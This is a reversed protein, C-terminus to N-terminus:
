WTQQSLFSLLMGWVKGRHSISNKEEASLESFYRGPFDVPSCIFDYGFGKEGRPADGVILRCVGRGSFIVEGEPNALALACVYQGSRNKHEKLLELLKQNNRLDREERPFKEGELESFRASYVGPQGHLADIEIGSDEGVCFINNLKANAVAKLIANDEFTIGNEIVEVFEKPQILSLGKVALIQSAERIKNQNTTALTIDAGM